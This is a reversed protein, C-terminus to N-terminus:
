RRSMGGFQYGVGWVTRILHPNKPDEELKERLWRIHVNLTSCESFCDRGWVEDFLEEKRIVQEPHNMLYVLLDFEKGSIDVERGEKYVKRAPLNVTINQYSLLERDESFAYSRRMMAKIKSALVQISFPKDIYDDAGVELGIIKSQDDTRASMMLVPINRSKRLEQLMKYGDMGPLMVDLLLLKCSEERLVKLGDEATREWKVIYGERKLFDCILTGLEENDEVVFIDTMQVEGAIREQTM